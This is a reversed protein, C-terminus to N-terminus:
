VDTKESSEKATESAVKDTESDIFPIELESFQQELNDVHNDLNSNNSQMEEKISEAMIPEEETQDSGVNEVVNKQDPDNDGVDDDDDDDDDNDNVEEEGDENEADDEVDDDDDDEDEEDGIGGQIKKFLDKSQLPKTSTVTATTPAPTGSPTPAPTAAPTPAPTPAPTGLPTPAPTPAPTPLELKPAYPRKKRSPNMSYCYCCRFTLYEYEEKLAMGNHSYCYKCILAYRNQPGDGVLYEVLKDFHTRDRPLIPRPLPPGPPTGYAGPSPRGNQASMMLRQPVPGRLGRIQPTMMPARPGAQRMSGMGPTASIPTPMRQQTSRQRLASGPTSQITTPTPPKELQKFRAPDFKELIEKAKKYTEKETVDELIQKKKERLDRLAVDNNSIRQVFYWHLLKKVGFILLPFILLPTSYLFRFTWEKPFYILFFVLAGIIYLLISYLLLSAILRKQKEQNERRFKQLNAIDKDISELIEVTTQKKRFRSIIAGM